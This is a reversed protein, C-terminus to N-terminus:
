APPVALVATNQEAEAPLGLRDAVIFEVQLPEIKRTQQM